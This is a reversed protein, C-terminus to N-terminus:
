QTTVIGRNVLLVKNQPKSVYVTYGDASSASSWRVMWVGAQGDYSDLLLATARADSAKRVFSAV